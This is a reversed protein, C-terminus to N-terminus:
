WKFKLAFRVVREPSNADTSTIRFFDESESDGNPNSFHPTNTFNFFEARFEMGLDETMQFTRFLSLDMNVWTPGRLINRGSNGYCDYMSCDEGPVRTVPAFAATDYYTGSTGILGIKQVEDKVQDATQSNEAADLSGGSSVGFQSQQNISFISNIQWNRIIKAAASDDDKGFPLEYLAALQFIHPRNYGANARNRKIIAPDNWSVGAWGEDGALDIAKSWTYAGKIFLGGTFRRNLAIQLSHYNKSFHGTWLDIDTTSHPYLQRGPTGTGPLGWNQEKDALQSTTQTGVYGISTVFDAPLKREYVLNWSQIYGRRIKDAPMTRQFVFSPLPVTAGESVTPGSFDPIGAELTLEPDPANEFDPVWSGAITLPYFGRLPRGFPIPSYTIGYGSRIVDNDTLRYAFGIRPAFLKKSVSIDNGLVLPLCQGSENDPDWNECDVLTDLRLHEMARDARTVLPYYEWRLGLTLTLKPSVQWRDRFYFAHQWERTTMLEWQLSKGVNDSVGLLFSAWANQDTLDQGPNATMERNFQFRGRPGAGIEPQWHDMLHRILDYGFRFEHNGSSKSFNITFTHSNEDRFLPTWGDVQGFGTYGDVNFEPVGGCRNVGDVICAQEQGAVANTGPIGLVDQGYNGLGLDATLCEQDMDTFGYNADVLFTPSMTWNTGVGYVKVDTLGVGDGGGGIAGGGGQPGFRPDKAVEADLWSFKGWIRHDDTRYWDGKFDYNFRDMAEVGSIEYNSSIGPKNPLPLNNQMTLAAPDLRDTPIINNPFPTKGAGSSDGTAPDMIVTDTFASFDGARQDATPLTLNDTKSVRNWTGEFGGFFFLKDKVIPFGATAGAITRKGSPNDAKGDGDTDTFNFFNRANLATNEHFGFVSGHFENTGSKTIVTLAAGGAFGQEADFNNTSVNVVEITESPPTYATHHPLWINVSQAGDIRTNNNNRATGNVNTTLARGPTDTIANQFRGPTAGPVLNLLTQYNRYAGLPLDTIEKSELQARVDTTDTQLVTAAGSVTISETIEGVQLVVNERTVGGVTVSVNEAVYEKFGTLSVRLTYSGDPVNALTYNGVDNTITAQTYNTDVNTITVEAGPIAGGTADVVNGTIGGYLRQAYVAQPTVWTLALTVVLGVLLFSHPWRIAYKTM